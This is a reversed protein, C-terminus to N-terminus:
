TSATGGNRAEALERLKDIGGIKEVLAELEDRAAPPDQEARALDIEGTAMAHRVVPDFHDVIEVLLACSHRLQESTVAATELPFEITARIVDAEPDLEYGVYPTVYAIRAMAEIAAARHACGKLRYVDPAVFSLFRGNEGVIVFVRLGADGDVDRFRKTEWVGHVLNDEAVVTLNIGAQKFLGALESLTVAM